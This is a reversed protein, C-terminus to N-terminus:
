AVPSIRGRHLGPARSRIVYGRDPSTPRQPAQCALVPFSVGIFLLSNEIRKIEPKELAQYVCYLKGAM